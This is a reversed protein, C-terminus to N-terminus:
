DDQGEVDIRIATQRLASADLNRQLFRLIVVPETGLFQRLPMQKPSDIM